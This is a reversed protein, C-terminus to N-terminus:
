KKYLVGFLCTQRDTQIGTWTKYLDRINPVQQAGWIYINLLNEAGVIANRAKQNALFRRSHALLRLKVDNPFYHALNLFKREPRKAFNHSDFEAAFGPQSNVLVIIGNGRTPYSTIIVM